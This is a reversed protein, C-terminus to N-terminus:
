PAAEEAKAEEIEEKPAQPLVAKAEEKTAEAAEAEKEEKPEAAVEATVEEMQAETAKAKKEEKPSALRRLAVVETYTAECMIRAKAIALVNKKLDGVKGM